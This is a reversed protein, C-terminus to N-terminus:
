QLLVVGEADQEQGARLRVHYVGPRMREGGESMRDWEVHYRGGGLVDDMLHRVRRGTVDMVDIQVRRAESGAITFSVEVRGRAVGIPSLRTASPQQAGDDVGVAPTCSSFKFTGVRLMWGTTSTAPYYENVYWFTCDDSPDVNMSSYDGWRNGFNTQVGVGNVITAEGQPMQNLPDAALRGTYRVGPFVTTANSVSYGLAMNGTHDMAISGNWRHVGDTLGPSYTGQQYIFPTGGPDRLEYWRIGSMPTTSVQVSQNSVLSEHTGFNRYALRNELEQRDSQIDLYQSSSAPPPQPICRRAGGPCPYISDFAVTPVTAALTFTSNAPTTFDAHFRWVTLADQPAGFPVGADMSGVFYSPSGAPPLRSGDLDAPLLGNGINYPTAGPPILFSIVRPAAVGAILDARNLAFAGVGADVSQNTFERISVYYADPWLAYKPADPFQNGLSFSWRYYSGTPDGTTSVAVCLSWATGSSTTVSLLWRDAFQDYLVIPQIGSDTQCAGGFGAWLTRNGAPGFLTHGAKDYVAFRANSMLVYHNPGVDASPSPPNIGTGPIADFSLLPSPMANIGASGQVAPDEQESEGSRGLEPGFEDATRSERSETPSAVMERLPPSIDFYTATLAGRAIAAPAAGRPSDAHGKAALLSPLLALALVLPLRITM